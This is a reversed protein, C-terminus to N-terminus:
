LVWYKGNLKFFEFYDQEHVIFASLHKNGGPPLTQYVDAPVYCQLLTEIKSIIVLWGVLWGFLWIVLEVSFFGEQSALL